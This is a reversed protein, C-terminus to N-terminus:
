NIRGGEGWLEFFFGDSLLFFSTYFVSSPSVHRVQDEQVAPDVPATPAEQDGQPDRNEQQRNRRRYVQDQQRQKLVMQVELDEPVEQVARVGPDELDERVVRNELGVQNEPVSPQPDARGEQDEPAELGEQHVQSRQQLVTRVVLVEQAVPVEPDQFM